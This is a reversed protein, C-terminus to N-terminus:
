IVRETVSINLADIIEKISKLDGDIISTLLAAYYVAIFLVLVCALSLTMVLLFVM